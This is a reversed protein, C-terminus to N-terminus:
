PLLIRERLRDVLVPGVGRVRVLDEPRRFPGHAVREAVIAAALAPGIGPLTELDAATAQNVRILGPTVPSGTSGVLVHPALGALTGPGIGPVRGLAALSAFDGTSDRAAVIRAALSPGVRPLRALEAASAHNVDIREGPALPRALRSARAAVTDAEPGRGVPASWVAGPAAPRPGCGRVAAGLMAVGLLVLAARVEAGWRMGFVIVARHFRVTM